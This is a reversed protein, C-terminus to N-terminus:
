AHPFARPSNQGSRILNKFAGEAQQSLICIHPCSFFCSFAPVLYHSILHSVLHHCSAPDVTYTTPLGWTGHTSKSLLTLLFQEHKPYMASLYLDRNGKLNWSSCKSSHNCLSIPIKAFPGFKSQGLARNYVLTLQHHMESMWTSDSDPPQPLLQTQLHLHPIFTQEFLHM